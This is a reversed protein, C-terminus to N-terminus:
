EREASEEDDLEDMDRVRQTADENQRRRSLAMIVVGGLFLAGLLLWLWTYGSGADKDAEDSASTADAEREDDEGQASESGPATSEGAAQAPTFTFTTQGKTAHGDSSTIQYGIRYEGPQADVDDPVAISVERDNVEPEGSFLVEDDSVRSLAVTNFDEKPQASFELVLETPFESVTEEIGPRADIVSDHALAVPATGVALMAAATGALLTRITASNMTRAMYPREEKWTTNLLDVPTDM